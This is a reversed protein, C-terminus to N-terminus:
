PIPRHDIRRYGSIKDEGSSMNPKHLPERDAGYGKAAVTHEYCGSLAPIAAFLLVLLAKRIM